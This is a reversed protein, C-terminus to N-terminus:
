QCRLYAVIVAVVVVVVAVLLVLRYVTDLLPENWLGAVKLGSFHLYTDLDNNSQELKDKKFIFVTRAFQSGLFCTPGRM